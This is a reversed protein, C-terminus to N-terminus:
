KLERAVRPDLEFPGHKFRGVYPGFSGPGHLRDVISRLYPCDDTPPAYVVECPWGVPWRLSDDWDRHFYDATTNASPMALLRVAGVVRGRSAGPKYIEETGEPIYIAILNESGALDAAMADLRKEANNPVAIHSIDADFGFLPEIWRFEM